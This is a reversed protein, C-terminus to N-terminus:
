PKLPVFALITEPFADTAMLFGYPELRVLGEWNRPHLDDILELQVPPRSTREIRRDRIRFEVLREVTQFRTHSPGAGYLKRLPDPQPRLKERDGWFFFNSVWFRGLGDVATADTLRYELHPFPLSGRPKGDLDFVHAMPESNVDMGNAEYLSIVRDQDIVLAEDSLNALNTGAPISTLSEPDLVIAKGDPRVDGTVLYGTMERGASAEITMFVKSGKFAVAEYGEFGRIKRELGPAVLPVRRPSLPKKTKGELFALIDEVSLVFLAGDDSFSFRGPYQPLLVLDKGYWALGSIEASRKTIDGELHIRIVPSERVMTVPIRDPNEEAPSACAYLLFPLLFVAKM